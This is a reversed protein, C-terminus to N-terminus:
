FVIGPQFFLHAFILIEKHHDDGALVPGADGCLERPVQHLV